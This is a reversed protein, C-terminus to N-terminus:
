NQKQFTKAKHFDFRVKIEMPGCIVHLKLSQKRLPFFFLKGKKKYREQHEGKFVTLAKGFGLVVLYKNTPLYAILFIGNMDLALLCLLSKLKGELVDIKPSADDFVRVPHLAFHKGVKEGSGFIEARSHEHSLHSGLVHSYNQLFLVIQGKSTSIACTVAGSDRHHFSGGM